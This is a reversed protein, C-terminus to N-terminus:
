KGCGQRMAAELSAGPHGGLALDVERTLTMADRLPDPLRNLAALQDTAMFTHRPACVPKRTQRDQRNRGRLRNGGVRYWRRRGYAKPVGLPEGQFVDTVEPEAALGAVAPVVADFGLAAVQIQEEGSAARVRVAALFDGGVDFNLGAGIISPGLQGGGDGM